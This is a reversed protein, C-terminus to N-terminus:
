CRRLVEVEMELLWCGVVLVEEVEGVWGVAFM